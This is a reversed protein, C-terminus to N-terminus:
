PDPRLKRSGSPMASSSKQLGLQAAEFLAVWDFVDLDAPRADRPLGRARLLTAVVRPPISRAAHEVPLNGRRFAGALMARYAVRAEAPLLPSSRRRIALFGADVSPRPEFASPPLQRVLRFEWWPQWGLSV